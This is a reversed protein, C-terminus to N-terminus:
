FSWVDQRQQYYSCIDNNAHLAHIRTNFILEKFLPAQYVLTRTIYWFRTFDSNQLALSAGSLWIVIVSRRTQESAREIDANRRGENARRARVVSAVGGVGTAVLSGDSIAGIGCFSTRLASIMLPAGPISLDRGERFTVQTIEDNRM